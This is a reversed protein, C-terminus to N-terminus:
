PQQQKKLGTVWIDLPPLTLLLAISIIFITGSVTKYSSVAAIAAEHHDSKLHEILDGYTFSTAMWWAMSGTLFPLLVTMFLGVLRKFERPHNYALVSLPTTIAVYVGLALDLM